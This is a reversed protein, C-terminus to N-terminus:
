DLLIDLEETAPILCVSKSCPSYELKCKVSIPDQTKLKVKQQFTAIGEFFGIDMKFISDYEIQPASEITEGILDYQPSAQFNFSTKIPGGEKLKQSYIHWGNDMMATITIIAETKNIKKVSYSWQVHEKIIQAFSYSSM